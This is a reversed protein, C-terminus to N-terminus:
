KSKVQVVYDRYPTSLEDNWHAPIPHNWVKSLSHDFVWAKPHIEKYTERRKSIHHRASLAVHRFEEREYMINVLDSMKYLVVMRQSRLIGIDLLNMSQVIFIISIRKHSIITQFQVWAKSWQSSFERSSAWLAADDVILVCDLLTFVNEPTVTQWGDPCADIANQPYGMLYVPKTAYSALLHGLCTKGSRGSGVAVIVGENSLIDDVKEPPKWRSCTQLYTM